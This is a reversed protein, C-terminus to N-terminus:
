GAVCLVAVCHELAPACAVATVARINDYAALALLLLDEVAAVRYRETQQLRQLRNCDTATQQLGRRGCCPIKRDTATQQLRNCDTATQQLRNCDTATQQLRNCHAKRGGCPTKSDTATHQLTNCPTAPHQLTNCPARRGCCPISCRTTVCPTRCHTARRYM